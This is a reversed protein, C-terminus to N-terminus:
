VKDDAAFKEVEIVDSELIEILDLHNAQKRVIGRGVRGPLRLGLLADIVGMHTIEDDMEVPQEIRTM